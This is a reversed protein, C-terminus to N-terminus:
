HATPEELTCYITDLIHIQALLFSPLTGEMWISNFIQGTSAKVHAADEVQISEPIEGM